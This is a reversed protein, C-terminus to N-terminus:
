RLKMLAHTVGNGVVQTWEMAEVLLEIVVFEKWSKRKTADILFEAEDPWVADPVATQPMQGSQKALASQEFHRAATADLEHVRATGSVRLQISDVPDYAVVAFSSNARLESVKASHRKAHCWLRASMRDAGRLLMLRGAAKGEPTVTCLTFLRLRDSPDDAARELRRWAEGAAQDAAPGVLEDQRFERAVKM